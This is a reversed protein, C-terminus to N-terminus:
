GRAQEGWELAVDRGNEKNVDCREESARLVASSIRFNFDASLEFVLAEVQGEVIADSGLM